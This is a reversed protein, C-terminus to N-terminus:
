EEDLPRVEKINTYIKDPDNKDKTETVVLMAQLGIHTDLNDDELLVNMESTSLGMETLRKKLRANAMRILRAEDKDMDNLMAETVEPYINLWDSLSSGDFDSEDEEIVWKFSLGEGTGDKKQVRSAETLIANYMGPAVYFPNDSVENADLDGFLGM